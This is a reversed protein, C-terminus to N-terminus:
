YTFYRAPALHHYGPRAPGAFLRELLQVSGPVVMHELKLDEALAESEPQSGALYHFVLFETQDLGKSIRPTITAKIGIIFYLPDGTNGLQNM